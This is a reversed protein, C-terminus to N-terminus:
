GTLTPRFLLSPITIEGSLTPTQRLQPLFGWIGRTTWETVGLQLLNSVVDCNLGLPNYAVMPRFTKAMRFIIEKASIRGVHGLSLNDVFFERIVAQNVVTELPRTDM